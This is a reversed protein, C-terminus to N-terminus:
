HKSQPKALWVEAFIEDLISREKRTVDTEKTVLLTLLWSVADQPVLDQRPHSLIELAILWAPKVRAQRKPIQKKRM